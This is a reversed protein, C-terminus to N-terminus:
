LLSKKQDMEPGAPKQCEGVINVRLQDLWSVANVVREYAIGGLFAVPHFRLYNPKCEIVELRAVNFGADRFVTRAARKTNLRYYTPFTDESPRGRRENVYRHFSTPTMAAILPVYHYRNPTVFFYVGGPKLVRFVDRAYGAADEIHEQVYISFALDVSADPLPIRPAEMRIGEDLLPNEVVRPDFDVGVMRAVKGRLKYQNLVGAGAGVDLVTSHPRAAAEVWQLM